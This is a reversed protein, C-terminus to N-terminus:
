IGGEFVHQLQLLFNNNTVTGLCIFPCCLYGSSKLAIPRQQPRSCKNCAYWCETFWKLQVILEEVSRLTLSLQFLNQGCRWGYINILGDAIIYRKLLKIIGWHIIIMDILLYNFSKFKRKLVKIDAKIFSWFFISLFASKTDIIVSLSFVLVVATCGWLQSCIQFLHIFSFTFSVM